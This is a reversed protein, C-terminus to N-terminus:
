PKVVVRVKAEPRTDKRAQTWPTRPFHIVLDTTGVKEGTVKFPMVSAAQGPPISFDFVALRGRTGGASDIVIVTLKDLGVTEGVRLTISTPEVRIASAKSAITALEASPIPAPRSASAGQAFAAGSMVLLLAGVRLITM